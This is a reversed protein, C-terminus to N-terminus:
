VELTFVTFEANESIFNHCAYVRRLLIMLRGLGMRLKLLRM